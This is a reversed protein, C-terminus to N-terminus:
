SGAEEDGMIEDSDKIAEAETAFPGCWGSDEPYCDTFGPAQIRWCWGEKIEIDEQDVHWRRTIEERSIEGEKFTFGGDDSDFCLWKGSEVYRKMFGM